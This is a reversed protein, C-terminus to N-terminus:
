PLLMQENGKQQKRTHTHKSRLPLGGKKGAAAGRERLQLRPTAAHLHHGAGQRRSMPLGGRTKTSTPTPSGFVLKKATLHFPVEVVLGCSAFIPLINGLSLWPTALFEGAQSRADRQWPVRPNGHTFVFSSPCWITRNLFFFFPVKKMNKSKNPPPQPSTPECPNRNWPIRTSRNRAGQPKQNLPESVGMALPSGPERGGM